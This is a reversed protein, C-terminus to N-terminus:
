PISITTISNVSVKPGDSEQEKHLLVEEYFHNEIKLHLWPVVTLDYAKVALGKRTKKSVFCQLICDKDGSVPVGDYEVTVQEM